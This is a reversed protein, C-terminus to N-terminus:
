PDDEDVPLSRKSRKKFVYLYVTMNTALVLAGFLWRMASTLEGPYILPILYQEIFGGPYGEGSAMLRFHNEIPTLPCEWNAWEVWVGWSMTSLHLWAWRAHHLCLLGGFLVFLIFALHLIVTLDAALRFSM